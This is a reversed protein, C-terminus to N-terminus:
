ARRSSVTTRMKSLPSTIIMGRLALEYATSSGRARVSRIMHCLRITVVRIAVAATVFESQLSGHVLEGTLIRRPGNGTHEDASDETERDARSGIKDDVRHQLASAAPDLLELPQGPVQDWQARGDPRTSSGEHGAPASSRGVPRLPRDVDRVPFGCPPSRRCASRAAAPDDRESRGAAAQAWGTTTPKLAPADHSGPVAAQSIASALEDREIWSSAM